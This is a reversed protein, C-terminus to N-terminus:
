KVGCATLFRERDFRPNDESLLTAINIAVSQDEVLYDVHSMRYEESATMRESQTRNYDASLKIAQALMVYDKRTLSM